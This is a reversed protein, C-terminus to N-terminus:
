LNMFLPPGRLSIFFPSANSFKELNFFKLNNEIFISVINSYLNTTNLSDFISFDCIFCSDFDFHTHSIETNSSYSHNCKAHNQYAIFHELNHYLRFIGVVLLLLLLVYKTNKNKTM